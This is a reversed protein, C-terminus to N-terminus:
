EPQPTMPPTPTTVTVLVGAPGTGTGVAASEGLEGTRSIARVEGIVGAGEREEDVTTM